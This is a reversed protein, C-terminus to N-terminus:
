RDGMSTRAFEASGAFLKSMGDRFADGIVNYHDRQPFRQITLELENFPTAALQQELLGFDETMELMDDLGISM